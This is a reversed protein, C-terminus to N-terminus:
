SSLAPPAPCYSRPYFESYRLDVQASYIGEGVIDHDELPELDMLGGDDKLMMETALELLKPEAINVGALTRLTECKYEVEPNKSMYPESPDLDINEGFYEKYPHFVEQRTSTTHVIDDIYMTFEYAKALPALHCLLMAYTTGGCVSRMACCRFRVPYTKSAQFSGPTTAGPGLYTTPSAFFKAGTQRLDPPLQVERTVATHTAEVRIDTPDSLSPLIVFVTAIHTEPPQTIGPAHLCKKRNFPSAFYSRSNMPVLKLYAAELISEHGADSISALQTGPITTKSAHADGLVTGTLYSMERSSPPVIFTEGRITLSTTPFPQEVSLALFPVNNDCMYDNPDTFERIQSELDEFESHLQLQQPPIYGKM